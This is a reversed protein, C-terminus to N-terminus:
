YLNDNVYKQTAKYRFDEQQHIWRAYGANEKALLVEHAEGRFKGFGIKTNDKVVFNKKGRNRAWKIRCEKCNKFKKLPTMDGCDACTIVRNQRSLFRKICSSGVVLVQEKVHTARPYNKHVLYANNVIDHTCICNQAMPPISIHRHESRMRCQDTDTWDYGLWNDINGDGNKRLAKFFLVAYMSLIRKSEKVDETNDISEIEFSDPDSTEFSDDIEFSDPDSDYQNMM